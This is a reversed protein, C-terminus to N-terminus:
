GTVLLYIYYGLLILGLAGSLGFFLLGAAIAIRNNNKKDGEYEKGFLYMKEGDENEAAILFGKEELWQLQEKVAATKPWNLKKIIQAESISKKRPIIGMIWRRLRKYM